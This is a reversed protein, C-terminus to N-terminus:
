IDRKWPVCRWMGGSAAQEYHHHEEPGRPILVHVDPYDFAEWGKVSGRLTIAVNWIKTLRDQEFEM